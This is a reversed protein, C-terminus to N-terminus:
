IRIGLVIALMPGRLLDVISESGLFFSNRADLLPQNVKANMITSNNMRLVFAPNSDIDGDLLGFGQEQSLEILMLM